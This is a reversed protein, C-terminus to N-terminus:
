SLGDFGEPLPDNFDEPVKVLGEHSGFQRERPEAAVAVLRAVPKGARAILVEEGRHVSEVLASLRSKAEHMNVIM